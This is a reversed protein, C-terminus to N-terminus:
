DINKYNDSNIFINVPILKKGNYEFGNKWEDEKVFVKTEFSEIIAKERDNEIKSSIFLSFATILLPFSFIISFVLTVIAGTKEENKREVNELKKTKSFLIM